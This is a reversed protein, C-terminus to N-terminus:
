VTVLYRIDHKNFIQYFHSNRLLPRLASQVCVNRSFKMRIENPSNKLTPSLDGYYFQIILRRASTRLGQDEGNPMSGLWQKILNTFYEGTRSQLSWHKYHSLPIHGQPAKFVIISITM